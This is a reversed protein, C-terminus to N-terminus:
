PMESMVELICKDVIKSQKVVDDDTLKKGASLMNELKEMEREKDM